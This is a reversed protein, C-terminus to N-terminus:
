DEEGTKIGAVKSGVIGRTWGRPLLELGQGVPMLGKGITYQALPSTAVVGGTGALALLPLGWPQGTAAGGAGILASIGFGGSSRMGPILRDKLFTQGERKKVNELVLPKVAELDGFQRNVMRVADDASSVNYKAGLSSMLDAVDPDNKRLQIAESTADEIYKRLDSALSMKIAAAKMSAESKDTKGYFDGVARYIKTKADQAASVDTLGSQNIDKVLAKLETKLTKQLASKDTGTYSNVMDRTGAFVYSGLPAIDETEDALDILRSLDNGTTKQLNKIKTLTNKPNTIVSSDIVGQDIMRDLQEVIQSTGQEANFQGGISKLSKNIDTQTLGSANRMMKRGEEELSESPLTHGAVGLAGSLVASPVGVDVARVLRNGLGGEGELFGTAAGQAGALAGGALAPSNRVAQSITASLQPFAQKFAGGSGIGGALNLLFSPVSNAEQFRKQDERIDALERNYAGQTSEPALGLPAMVVNSPATVAERLVPGWTLPNLTAGSEQAARIPARLAAIVEDGMGLTYGGLFEQAPDRVYREATDQIFEWPDM